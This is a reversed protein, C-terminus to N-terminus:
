DVRDSVGKEIMDSMLYLTKRLHNKEKIVANNMKAIALKELWNAYKKWDESNPEIIIDTEAEFQQHLEQSSENM